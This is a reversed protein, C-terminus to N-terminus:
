RRGLGSGLGSGLRRGLGSGLRRGLGSSLRRSLGSGFRRGLRHSLSGSHLFVDHQRSGKVAAHAHGHGLHLSLEVFHEVGIDGVIALIAILHVFVIGFELIRNRLFSHLQLQALLHSLAVRHIGSVVEGLLLIFGILRFSQRRQDLHRLIIGLHQEAVAHRLILNFLHDLRLQLGRAIGVVGKVLAGLELAHQIMQIGQADLAHSHGVFLNLSREVFLNGRLLSGVVGIHVREDACIDAAFLQEIRRFAHTQQM